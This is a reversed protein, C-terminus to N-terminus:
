DEWHHQKLEAKSFLTRENSTDLGSGVNRRQPEEASHGKPPLDVAL